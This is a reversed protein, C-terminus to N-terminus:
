STYGGEGIIIASDVEVPHDAVLVVEPPERIKEVSYSSGLDPVPAVVLVSKRM